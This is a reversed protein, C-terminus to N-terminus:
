REKCFVDEYNKIIENRRDFRAGIKQYLRFCLNANVEPNIHKAHRIIDLLDDSRFVDEYNKIIENRRDFRAGIKQYLRFCLNANVEPNIHKAHRIIDLLDDANSM